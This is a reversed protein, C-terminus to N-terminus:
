NPLRLSPNRLTSRASTSTWRWRLLGLVCLVLISAKAVQFKFSLSIDWFFKGQKRSGMSPAAAGMKQSLECAKPGVVFTSPELFQFGFSCLEGKGFGLFLCMGGNHFGLFKNANRKRAEVRQAKDFIVAPHTKPLLLRPRPLATPFFTPCGARM